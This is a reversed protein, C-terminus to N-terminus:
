CQCRAQGPTTKRRSADDDEAKFTFHREAAAVAMAYARIADERRGAKEYIQGLHNGVAPVFYLLPWAAEIYALASPTDSRLFYIWGRTDWYQAIWFRLEDTGRDSARSFYQAPSAVGHKVVHEVM